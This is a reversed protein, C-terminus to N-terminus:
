DRALHGGAPFPNPWTSESSGQRMVTLRLLDMELFGFVGFASQMGAVSVTDAGIALGLGWPAGLTLIGQLPWRGYAGGGWFRGVVGVDLALGWDGRAFGGSAARTALSIDVGQRFFATTRFIGGMVFDSRPSSGVGLAYTMAAARDNTQSTHDRNVAYGPGLSFWSSTDARAAEPALALGAALAVSALVFRM